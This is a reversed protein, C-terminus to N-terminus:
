YSIIAKSGKKTGRVSGGHSGKKRTKRTHKMRATKISRVRRVWKEKAQKGGSRQSGKTIAMFICDFMEVKGVKQMGDDDDDECSIWSEEAM